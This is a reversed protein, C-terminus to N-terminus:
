NQWPKPLTLFLHKKYPKPIQKRLHTTKTSILTQEDYLTHRLDIYFLILIFIFPSYSFPAHM